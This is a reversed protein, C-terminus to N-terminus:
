QNFLNGSTIEDSHFDLSFFRPFSSRFILQCLDASLYRAPSIAVNWPSGNPSVENFFLYPVFSIITFM